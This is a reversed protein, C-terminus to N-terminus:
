MVLEPPFGARKTKAQEHNSPTSGNNCMGYSSQGGRGPGGAIAGVLVEGSEVARPARRRRARRQTEPTEVRTECVTSGTSAGSFAERAEAGRV